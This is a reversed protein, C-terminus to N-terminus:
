IALFCHTPREGGVRKRVQTLDSSKEMAEGHSGLGALHFLKCFCRCKKRNRVAELKIADLSCCVM